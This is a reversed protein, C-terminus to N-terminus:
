NFAKFQCRLVTRKQGDKNSGFDDGGRGWSSMAGLGGAFPLVEPKGMVVSKMTLFFALAEPWAMLVPNKTRGFYPLVEPRAIIAPEEKAGFIATGGAKGHGSFEKNPLCIGTGGAKGHGSFVKNPWFFADGRYKFYGSSKQKGFISAGRATSYGCTEEKVGLFSLVFFSPLFVKNTHMSDVIGFVHIIGKASFCAMM